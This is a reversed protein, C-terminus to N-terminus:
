DRPACARLAQPSALEGASSGATRSASNMQPAHAYALPAPPAMPGPAPRLARRGARWSDHRSGRRAARRSGNNRQEGSAALAFAVGAYMFSRRASARPSSSVSCGYMACVEVVTAENRARMFFRHTDSEPASRLGASSLEDSRLRRVPM